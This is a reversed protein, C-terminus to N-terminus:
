EVGLRTEVLNRKRQEMYRLHASVQRAIGEEVSSPKPPEQIDYHQFRDSGRALLVPHHFLEQRVSPSVYRIAFGIRKQTSHNPNSGHIAHAHHLSMEGPALEVDVTRAEDIDTDVTLGSGLMNDDDPKTSHPLGTQHSGLVVRMCGNARSSTSLAVWASIYDPRNLSLFYSDQHWSVFAADGPQKAFVSSGHVLIDPGLIREILDLIAPHTVLSHAWPFHLHLQKLQDPQPNNGLHSELEEYHNRFKRVEASELVPCPSLLGDREFVARASDM